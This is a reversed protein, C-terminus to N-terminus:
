LAILEAQIAQLREATLLHPANRRLADLSQDGVWPPVRMSTIEAGAHKMLIAKTREDAMLERFSCAIDLRGAVHRVNM